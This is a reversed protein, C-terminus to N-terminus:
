LFIEKFSDIVFQKWICHKIEHVGLNTSPVTSYKTDTM